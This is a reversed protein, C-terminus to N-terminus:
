KGYKYNGKTVGIKKGALEFFAVICIYYTYFAHLIFSFNRYVVVLRISDMLPLIISAVYLVFLTIRKLLVDNYQVRTSYGSKNADNIGIHVRLRLKRIYNVLHAESMHLINDGPIIGVKQTKNVMQLFM